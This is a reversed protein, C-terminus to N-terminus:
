SLGALFLGALTYQTCVLTRTAYKTRVRVLEYRDMLVSNDVASSQTTNTSLVLVWGCLKDIAWLTFLLSACPWPSIATQRSLDRPRLIACTRDHTAVNGGLTSLISDVRPQWLSLKAHRKRCTACTHLKGTMEGLYTTECACVLTAVPANLLHCTVIHNLNGSCTTAQALSIPKICKVCLAFRAISYNTAHRLLPRLLNIIIINFLSRKKRVGGVLVRVPQTNQLPALEHRNSRWFRLNTGPFKLWSCGSCWSL